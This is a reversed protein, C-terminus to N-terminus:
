IDDKKIEKGRKICEMDRHLRKDDVNAQDMGKKTQGGGGWGDEWTDMWDDILDDIGQGNKGVGRM